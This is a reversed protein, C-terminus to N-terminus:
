SNRGEENKFRPKELKKTRYPSKEYKKNRPWEM